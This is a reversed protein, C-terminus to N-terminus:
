QGCPLSLEQGDRRFGVEVKGARWELREGRALKDLLLNEVPRVSVLLTCLFLENCAVGALAIGIAWQRLQTQEGVLHRVLQDGNCAAALEVLEVEVGEKLGGAVVLLCTELVFAIHLLPEVDNAALVCWLM